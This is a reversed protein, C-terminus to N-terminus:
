DEWPAKYRAGPPEPDPLKVEQDWEVIQLYPKVFKYSARGISGKRNKLIALIIEETQEKQTEPDEIKPRWMGIIYDAAEEVVGSDRGMDLSLPEAGSKGVRSTQHLYLIATDTDKALKKLLKALSSVEEYTTGGDGKMRGLYDVCVLPPTTGIKQASLSIFDRLEEYTLFDEDVIYLNKYCRETLMHLTDRNSDKDSFAREVEEGSRDNSIQVAREYIQAMPQEMSFFLVPIDQNVIIHRIANLIFATKGVGTRAMVQMVEGPAIGRTHKDLKNFGLLIKRQKLNEVYDLYKSRAQDLTYIKDASVRGEERGKFICRPSCYDMLVPDNCGFDYSGLAQRVLKDVNEPDMPPTNRMNWAQMMPLTIDEPFQKLLHVALRLGANDRGGESIGELIKYYCLKSNRPAKIQTGTEQKIERPKKLGEVVRRYLECLYENKSEPREVKIARPTKALEKIEDMSKHMIEATSLPVKYLGTKSNTTNSLRFIRVRDYVATDIKIEQTIELAVQRFAQPMEVSPGYGFMTAPILLHFGKAGSFYIRLEDLNIEYNILLKELVAKASEHAKELNADDVDIPFFDAYVPGAYGKVTKNQQFYVRFEDPYRFVTRYCDKGDKPPMVESVKVINNRNQPGNYAVEVWQYEPYRM